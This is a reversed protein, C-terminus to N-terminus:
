AKKSTKAIKMNSPTILIKDESIRAIDGNISQTFGSLRSLHEKLQAPNRSASAVSLLVVNKSQLEDQVTALDGESELAIPKVYYDAPGHVVDVDEDELSNMADDLNGVAQRPSGFISEFLGM